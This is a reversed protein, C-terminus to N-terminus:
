TKYTKLIKRYYHLDHKMNRINKTLLIVAMNWKNNMNESLLTVTM